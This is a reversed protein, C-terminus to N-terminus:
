KGYSVSVEGLAAIEETGLVINSTSGNVTVSEVTDISENESIVTAVAYYNVESKKYAISKFFERLDDELGVVDSYGSKM